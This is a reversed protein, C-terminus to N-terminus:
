ISIKSVSARIIFQDTIEAKTLKFCGNNQRKRGFNSNILFPLLFFGTLENTITLIEQELLKFNNSKDRSKAIEILIKNIIPWEDCLKNISDNYMFKFDIEILAPFTTSCKFAPFDSFYKSITLEQRNKLENLRFPVSITWHRIVADYPEVNVRLFEVSEKHINFETSMTANVNTALATSSKIKARLKNYASYLKGTSLQKTLKNYPIFYINENETKFIDNIQKSLQQLRYSSIKYNGTIDFEKEM